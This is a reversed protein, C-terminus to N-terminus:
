WFGFGMDTRCMTDAAGPQFSPKCSPTQLPCRMATSFPEMKLRKIGTTVSTGGVKVDLLDSQQGWLTNIHTTDATIEKFQMLLDLNVSVYQPNRQLLFQM